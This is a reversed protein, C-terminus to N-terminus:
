PHHWSTVLCMSPVFWQLFRVAYVQTQARQVCVTSGPMSQHISGCPFPHSLIVRFNLAAVASGESGEKMSNQSLFSSKVTPKTQASRIVECKVNLSTSLDKVEWVVSTEPVDRSSQKQNEQCASTLCPCSKMKLCSVWMQQMRLGLYM